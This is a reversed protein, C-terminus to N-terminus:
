LRKLSFDQSDLTLNPNYFPDGNKLIDPWRKEFTAIEQNFRAVKEPTDELGRSKSEYHYLEAYPNYVILYGAQRLKMCFDIDNFAVQLEESLGGVKEFAERKVMMCAATGASYDQACIIRHCYGTFGRKQQVFCHGAIGGFGIVVGAHQITDDEYYLRAGVAGVDERTCYGLLEELCDDNIIETDNNLLLFYEGKAYQVGFNNIASYNFHGKYYVVHVKPNVAELQEYYAFTEKEESNNEVIIYEYNTYTSKAEISDICRKLDDIHDKNPIIISILPDYDRLFKTRYLGLFEGKSVEVKVGIRDYHAQVARQGADFAYLKSEPNAATSQMHCRWHYLIKPIHRINKANECCRLIFDLDQAGDYESCFGGAMDVLEKKAAFLHCIYNVSCLLDLDFDPKFHPEFRKKGDMSIKDEDSYLVDISRDQNLADALEYLANAPVIDDHDALVIYDGAALALAANTNGSIGLNKPLTTFTIRKDAKAYQELLPTLETVPVQGNEATGADDGSLSGDALCLQWNGYTQAQISGIMEKLFEPKTRYLPVVVSFLPQYSFIKKRQEELEEKKVDYKQCWADYSTESKGGLKNEIKHITASLGNRELYRLADQSKELIYQWRGGDDWKRLRTRSYHEANRMELFFKKNDDKRPISAQIMFGPKAQIDCEPFVSLLDKRFYHDTKVQLKQRRNDLLYLNAEGAGMGWGTVTVTDEDRHCNEIYYELRSERVRLKGTSVAYARKKSEGDDTFIEFKKKERWDKPLTVIGVVEENIENITGLYKQRVEAGKNVTLAAPLKEGDLYAQVERGSAKGDYFWGVFVLMDPENLHFRLKEVFFKHTDM